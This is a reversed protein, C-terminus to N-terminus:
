PPSASGGSPRCSRDPECSDLDTSRVHRFSVTTELAEQWSIAAALQVAGYGRLGQDWALDAARDFLPENVPLRIFDPWEQRFTQHALLADERSIVVTAGTKVQEVYHSLQEQLQRIGVTYQSM